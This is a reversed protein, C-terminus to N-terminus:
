TAFTKIAYYIDSILEGTKIGRWFRKFLYKPRFYFEKYFKHYYEDLIDWSLNPHDYVKSATHFNYKSWDKTKIRGEASWQKYIATEPYPVLITCKAYDLNLEQAFKITKKMTEITEGPLGIMFFGLTDLGVKKALAVSSKVQELTIRKNILEIIEQNGTEIGFYVAYCGAAKAKRLFEEDVIDVRIGCALCWPFKLGRNIIEDCINKARDLQTTFMDDWIHIEKFGCKLMYEMEDVVRKASKPRFKRSFTLKNCYTCAFVCGRSTEIAGVPQRRSTLRSAKYKYIDYLHWAPMPLEDINDILPRDKTTIIKDGKKFCIGEIKDYNGPENKVLDIIAYDGEGRVVVDAKSEKLVDQPLCTPHVGGAIVTIKPNTEKVVDCIAYAEYVLPTTFTLGVHTPNFDLIKEKVAVLPPVEVVSLDLISVDINNKELMAGLMAMSIYPIESVAAKLASTNYVRVSSPPIILLVKVM